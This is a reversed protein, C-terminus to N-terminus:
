WSLFFQVSKTIVREKGHCRSNPSLMCCLTLIHEERKLWPGFQGFCWPLCENVVERKLVNSRFLM